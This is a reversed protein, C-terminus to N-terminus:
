NGKDSRGSSEGSTGVGPQDASGGKPVLRRADIGPHANIPTTAAENGKENYDRTPAAEETEHLTSPAGILNAVIIVGDM